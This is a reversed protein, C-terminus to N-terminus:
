CGLPCGRVAASTTDVDLYSNGSTTATATTGSVAVIAKTTTPDLTVEWPGVRDLYSYWSWAPTEPEQPVFPDFGPGSTQRIQGVSDYETVGLRVDTMNSRIYANVFLRRQGTQDAAPVNFRASTLWARAPPSPNAIQVRAYYQGTASNSTPGMRLLTPSVQGGSSWNAPKTGSSDATELDPNALLQAGGASTGNMEGSVAGLADKPDNPDYGLGLVQSTNPPASDWLSWHLYYPFSNSQAGSMMTTVRSAQQAEQSDRDAQASQWPTQRGFEGMLATANPFVSVLHNYSALYDPNNSGANDPYSHFDVFDLTRGGLNAKLLDADNQGAPFKPYQARLVSVARKGAPVVSNDYMYNVYAWDRPKAPDPDSTRVQGTTENLFDYAIVADRNPSAEIAGVYGDIWQKAEQLFNTWSGSTYYCYWIKEDTCAPNSSYLRFYTNAFTVIVKINRAKALGILDPINSTEDTFEQTFTGHQNSSPQTPLAPLKWAAWSATQTPTDQGDCTAVNGNPLIVLRIVGGGLSAIHDLDREVIPRNQAWDSGAVGDSNGLVDNSMCYPWYDFGFVGAEAPQAAPYAAIVVFAVLGLFFAFLRRSLNARVGHRCWAFGYRPGYTSLGTM